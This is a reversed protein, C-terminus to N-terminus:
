NTNLNEQIFIVMSPYVESYISDNWDNHGGNPYLYLQNVVGMENLKNHLRPGQSDPVLPDQGGYFSITPTSTATVYTIPSVEEIKSIQPNESGTINRIYGSYASLSPYQPDSFDSPGVFNVVAKIDHNQDFGYSYLMSLHGGASSGMLAYNNSLTYNSSNLKALALGIDEIQKSYAPSASTALRYNLNVIAYGPFLGQLFVMFDTHESKDGAEWAGGHIYIVTKTETTRGAPLYIDMTQQPDTGYHENEIVIAESPNYTPSPTDNSNCSTLLLFLPIIYLIRKM